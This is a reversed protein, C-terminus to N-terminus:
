REGKDLVSGDPGILAGEEGGATGDLNFASELKEAEAKAAKALDGLQATAQATAQALGEALNGLDWGQAWQM